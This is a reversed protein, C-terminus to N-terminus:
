LPAAAIEARFVLDHIAHQLIARQRDDFKRLKEAIFEVFIACDDKKERKLVRYVKEVRTNQTSRKKSTRRKRCWFQASKTAYIKETRDPDEEVGANSTESNRENTDEESRSGNEGFINQGDYINQEPNEIYDEDIPEQKLELSTTLTVQQEDPDDLFKMSEWAFWRSECKRQIAKGTRVRELLRHKERRRSGRLSEMKKKLVDPDEKLIKSLEHWAGEKKRANHYDKDHKKWLAPRKEYEKIFFLLKEYNWTMKAM